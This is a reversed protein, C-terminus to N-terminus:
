KNWNAVMAGYQRIMGHVQIPQAEALMNFWDYQGMYDMAYDTTTTTVNETVDQTIYSVVDNGNEDQTIIQNTVTTTVPTTITTTVPFIIEGTAPNVAVTNDAISNHSYDPIVSGLYGGYEGNMDSFSSIVWTLALYKADQNYTMTFLKAKRKIITDNVVLDPIDIIIDVTTYPILNAM